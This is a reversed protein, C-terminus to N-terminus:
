NSALVQISFWNVAVFKQPEARDFYLEARDGDSISAVLFRALVPLQNKQATM